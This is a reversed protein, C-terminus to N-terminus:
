SNTLARSQRAQQKKAKREGLDDLGSSHVTHLHRTLQDKRVFTKPCKPCSHRTADHIKRHKSLNSSESFTAGCITCMLPKVGTHTRLHMTLASSGRFAANCGEIHCKYPKEETHIRMHQSLAQQGSFSQHCVDCTLPKFGTHTKTHRALKSKSDFGKDRTCGDWQCCFKGQDNKFSANMDLHEEEIHAQLSKPDQAFYSCVGGTAVRWRCQCPMGRVSPSNPISCPTSPTPCPTESSVRSPTMSPATFPATPPSNVPLIWQAAYTVEQLSSEPMVFPATSQTESHASLPEAYPSPAYSGGLGFSSQSHASLPRPYSPGYPAMLRPTSALTSPTASLDVSSGFTSASATSNTLPTFWNRPMNMSPWFSTFDVATLNGQLGPAFNNAHGALGQQMHDVLMGAHSADHSSTFNCADNDCCVAEGDDGCQSACDFDYDGVDIHPISFSGAPYDDINHTNIACNDDQCVVDECGTECVPDECHAEECVADECHTDECVADECHAEDCITELCHSELCQTGPCQTYLCRPDVCHDHSCCPDTAPTEPYSLHASAEPESYRFHFPSSSPSSAKSAMEAHRQTETTVLLTHAQPCQPSTSPSSSARVSPSERPPAPSRQPLIYITGLRQIGSLAPRKPQRCFSGGARGEHRNHRGEPEARDAAHPGQHGAATM